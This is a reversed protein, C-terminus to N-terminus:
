DPARACISLLKTVDAPTAVQDYFSALYKTAKERSRQDLQPVEKLVALLSARRAALDAIAAQAEANHRCYGRYRRIRINALPIAEPPSAYPADVMGAFDFDYPVVVLDTAAGKAGILRANHCCDDGAPAVNMSWDLNGIFDQFVVFRGAARANLSSVPARGTTKFEHLDNRDAVDDIDEIFFGLRSVMPKGAQDVYDITALRVNFSAPTLQNYMRYAAYELLMFQQFSAGSQCHTVLKLRKQGKFLSTAAPKATLEVRLPPSTCVEKRRRTIGRASLSVALTEPHAGQVTLTGPVVKDANSRGEVLSGIPGQLTLHIVENSSFLPKAPAGAAQAPGASMTVSWAAAVVASWISGRMM